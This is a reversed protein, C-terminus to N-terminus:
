RGRRRQSLRRRLRPGDGPHQQAVYYNESAMLYAAALPTSPAERPSLLELATLLQDAVDLRGIKMATRFAALIQQELTRDRIASMTASKWSIRAPCRATEWLPLTLSRM